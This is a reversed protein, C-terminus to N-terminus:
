TSLTVQVEQLLYLPSSLPYYPAGLVKGWALLLLFLWLWLLLLLLLWVLSLMVLLLVLPCCRRLRM